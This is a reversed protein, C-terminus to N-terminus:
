SHFFNLCYHLARDYFNPERNFHIHSGIEANNWNAKTPGQLLWKLLRPDIIFRIFKKYRKEESFNILDYGNGNCSVALMKNKPFDLLVTYDSSHHFENLKSNFRKYSAPVLEMLEDVSPVSEKEFDFQRKSLVEEIYRRKRDKSIPVYPQQTKGTTLDFYNDLNLIIGKHKNQDFKSVLHQYGEELEPLCRYKGLNTLKGSLVYRGAVPMFYRAQLLNMFSESWGFYRKKMEKIIKEYEEESYDFCQLIIHGHDM